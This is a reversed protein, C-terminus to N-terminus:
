SWRIETIGLRSHFEAIKRQLQLILQEKLRYQVKIEQTNFIQKMQHYTLVRKMNVFFVYAETESDDFFVPSKWLYEKSSLYGGFKSILQKNKAMIRFTLYYLESGEKMQAYDCSASIKVAYVKIDKNALFSFEDLKVIDTMLPEDEIGPINFYKLATNPLEIIGGLYLKQTSEINLHFLQNYSGVIKFDSIQKEEALADCNILFNNWFANSNKSHILNDNIIPALALNLAHSPNDSLHQSGVAERAFVALMNSMSQSFSIDKSVGLSALKEIALLTKDTAKRVELDWQLLANLGQNNEIKSRLENLFKDSDQIEGTMTDILGLKSFCLIDIPGKSESAEFYQLLGEKINDDSYETWVILLYPPHDKELLDEILGVITSCHIKFDGETLQLDSFIVKVSQCYKKIEEESDVSYEFALPPFGLQSLGTSIANLHNKKDDIVLFQATHGLM